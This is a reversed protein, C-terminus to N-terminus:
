PSSFTQCWSDNLKFERLFKVFKREMSLLSSQPSTGAKQLVSATVLPPLSGGNLNSMPQKLFIGHTPCATGWCKCLNVINYNVAKEGSVTQFVRQGAIGIVEQPQPIDGIGSEDM